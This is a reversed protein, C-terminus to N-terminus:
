PVARARYMTQVWVEITIRIFIISLATSLWWPIYNTSWVFFGVELAAIAMPIILFLKSERILDMEITEKPGIYVTEKISRLDMFCQIHFFPYFFLERADHQM